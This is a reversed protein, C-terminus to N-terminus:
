FRNLDLVLQRTSLASEGEGPMEKITEDPDVWTEGSYKVTVMYTDAILRVTSSDELRAQDVELARCHETTDNIYEILEDIAKDVAIEADIRQTPVEGLQVTAVFKGYTYRATSETENPDIALVAVKHERWTHFSILEKPFLTPTTPNSDSM